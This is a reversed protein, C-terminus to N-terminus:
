DGQQQLQAQRHRLCECLRIRLLWTRVARQVLVRALSQIVKANRERVQARWWAAGCALEVPFQDM